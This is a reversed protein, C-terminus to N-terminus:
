GVDVLWGSAYRRLGIADNGSDSAAADGIIVDAESASRM